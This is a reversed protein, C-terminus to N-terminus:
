CKNLCCDFNSFRLVNDFVIRPLDLYPFVFLFQLRKLEKFLLLLTVSLTQELQNLSNLLIDENTYTSM